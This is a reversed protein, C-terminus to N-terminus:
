FLVEEKASSADQGFMEGPKKETNSKVMMSNLFTKKIYQVVNQLTYCYLQFLGSMDHWVFLSRAPLFQLHM